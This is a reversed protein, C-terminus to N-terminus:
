PHAAPPAEAPGLRAPDLAAVRAALASLLRVGVPLAAPDARFAPTHLDHPAADGPPRVGLRFMMQARGAGFLSFDEGGLSPRDRLELAEAGLQERVVAGAQRAIEPHNFISPQGPRLEVECRAGHAASIGDCTRRIAGLLEQRTAEGFTRLNGDIWAQDPLINPREGARFTTFLLLAADQPDVTRRVLDELEILLLAGARVPDVARQPRAGHAGRGLVRIGIGDVAANIVGAKFAVRGVALRPDVHLAIAADCGGAVGAAVMAEAGSPNTEESPQFVLRFGGALRPRRRQLHAGAAALIATHLDHGCAHMVGPVTSAYPLGSAEAIPLADLDARLLVRAGPAAGAIDAVIGPEVPCDALPVGHEALFAGVRRATRQEQWALEPHRHLEEFLRGAADIIDPDLKM